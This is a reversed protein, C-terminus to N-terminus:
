RGEGRRNLGPSLEGSELEESAIESRGREADPSEASGADLSDEEFRGVEREDALGARDERKRRFLSKLKDLCKRVFGKEVTPPTFAPVESVDWEEEVDVLGELMDEHWQAYDYCLELIRQINRDLCSVLGIDVLSDEIIYVTGSEEIGNCRPLLGEELLHSGSVLVALYAHDRPFLTVLFESILVALTLTVASSAGPFELRLSSKNRYRRVPIDSLLVKRASSLNGFDDMDLYGHTEVSITACVREVVVNSVTRKDGANEGSTWEDICYSRLQRYYRRRSFHDSARRMVVGNEASISAIEYYKGNVVTFQGPLFSQYVHGYLRDGVLASTGDSEETMLPVNRLGSFCDSYSAADKLRFYRKKVIDRLAPVYEEVVDVILQNEPLSGHDTGEADIHDVLLGELAERADKVEIGAFRLRALVTEEPLFNKAQAMAMVISFVINRQSRSYDPAFSPIAKPDHLFVESNRSMYDRLIYNPVVINVFSQEFGRTAFQRATEYMNCVEDEAVLFANEAKRVAWADWSFSMHADIQLQEQPLGAFSMLECYYQGAIWRMDVLPVNRSSAWTVKSVQSKMAVLGLETGVGLYRAVGPVLRLQLSPADAEWFMSASVGNAGETAAVETLSARLAHCLSDVLGDSNGDFVCYTVPEGCSLCEALYSLGIQYTALLSSPDVVVVFSVTKYYDANELVGCVDGLSSFSLMGIHPQEHPDKRIAGVSWMDRVGTVFAIGSEMYAKLSEESSGPGFLVLVRRNRQLQAVVPLFVYPMYDYYFPSAFMVSKGQLLRISEWALDHDLSDFVERRDGKGLVGREVLAKYYGGALRTSFDESAILKECFDEHIMESKKRASHDNEFILTDGFYHRLVDQLKAYQFIRVAGDGEIQMDDRYESKTVGSLAFCAEGMALVALGPYFPNAFPPADPFVGALFFLLASAVIAAVYLNRVLFRAGRYEARLFWLGESEDFAYFVRALSEALKPLLRAGIFVLAFYAGKVAVFGILLLVNFLVGVVFTIPLTSIFSVYNAAFLVTQQLLTSMRNFAMVAVVGYLVAVAPLLLQRYRSTAGANAKYVLLVGLLFLAVGAFGLFIRLM